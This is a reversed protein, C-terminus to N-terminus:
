VGFGWFGLVGFGWPSSIFINSLLTKNTKLFYIDNLHIFTGTLAIFSVLLVLLNWCCGLLWSSCLIVNIVLKFLLVQLHCFTDSLVVGIGRKCIFELFHRYISFCGHVLSFLIVRKILHLLVLDQTRWNPVAVEIRLDRVRIVVSILHVVLFVLLLLILLIRLVISILNNLSTARSLSNYLLLLVILMLLISKLVDIIM